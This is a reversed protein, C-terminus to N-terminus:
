STIIYRALANDVAQQQDRRTLWHHYTKTHISVSHGMMRAAVTDPLGIHITRVAWSHRLDYPTLPLNYRRFQESVRRGVQQLTTKALDTNIEPLATPEEGLRELGFRKIWDPHFPWAQHEGTKTNPLVRIVKDGNKSLSSLDSFFIEHNRLGYTAMLGYALRWRPNPILEWFKLILNDNPLHRFHAKHLGYGKAEAKWDKPLAVGFHGAFASLATACQQRSRSNESYSALTLSLLNTTFGKQSTKAITLLRNIYPLYASSWTTKTGAPSKRRLPNSFFNTKFKEIADELDSPVSKKQTTNTQREWYKWDFKNHQLQLVVLELIREAEEVGEPTASLRLSIRQVARRENGDKSPLPGRLNLREGRQEIRMSSGKSALALNIAKLKKSVTM